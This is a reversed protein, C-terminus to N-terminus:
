GTDPLRVQLNGDSDTRTAFRPQPATAPGGVNWGDPLRSVSGRWPCTVCGDAVTGQSLPLVPPQVPRGPRRVRGRAGCWWCRYKATWGASAEGVAFEGVHGLTHWGPEVLHPGLETRNAGAAQRYALHGGIAAGAGVVTQGAFGLVRGLGDRGRDAWSAGYLAVATAISAAYM